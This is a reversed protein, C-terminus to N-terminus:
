QALVLVVTAYTTLGITAAVGWWTPDIRGAARRKEDEIEDRREWWGM